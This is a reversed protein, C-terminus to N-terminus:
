RSVKVCADPYQECAALYREVWPVFVEYSSWGNEPNYVEFRPPDSKMLDLGARLPEILQRAQTVGIEDPRWLHEYIGAEGAMTNLNHTINAEFVECEHSPAIFPERDPFNEDWEARTIEVTQGNQRVFIGSGGGLPVSADALELYVDLSM